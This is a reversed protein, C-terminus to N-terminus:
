KIHAIEIAHVDAARATEDALRIYGFLPILALVAVVGRIDGLHLDGVSGFEQDLFQHGHLECWSEVCGDKISLFNLFM